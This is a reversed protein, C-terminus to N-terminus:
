ATGGHMRRVLRPRRSTGTEGRSALHTSTGGGPQLGGLYVIRQVGARAAADRFKTAANRDLVPFGAGAAMSHVLYFAIDIGQLAADLSAADLADAAVLEVDRWGPAQLADLRRSAARVAFGRTALLPVLNSGVYGSAGLVLAHLSAATM